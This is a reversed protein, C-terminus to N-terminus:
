AQLLLHGRLVTGPVIIGRQITKREVQRLLDLIARLCFINITDTLNYFATFKIEVQELRKLHIKGFRRSNEHEKM